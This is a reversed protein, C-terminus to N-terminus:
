VRISLCLRVESVRGQSLLRFFHLQWLRDRAQVFGLGYISGEYTKANVLKLGNEISHIEIDEYYNPGKLHTIKGLQDSTLIFTIMGAIFSIIVVVVILSQRLVM